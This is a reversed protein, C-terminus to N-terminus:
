GFRRQREVPDLSRLTLRLIFCIKNIDQSKSAKSLADDLLRFNVESLAQRHHSLWFLFAVVIQPKSNLDLTKVKSSEIFLPSPQHLLRRNQIPSCDIIFNHSLSLPIFLRDFFKPSIHCRNIQHFHDSYWLNGEILNLVM